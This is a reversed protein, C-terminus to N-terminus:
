FEFIFAEMNRMKLWFFFFFSKLCKELCIREREKTKNRKWVGKIRRKEGCDCPLTRAGLRGKRPEM